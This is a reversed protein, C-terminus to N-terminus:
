RPALTPKAEKAEKAEKLKAAQLKVQEVYLLDEELMRDIAPFAGAAQM